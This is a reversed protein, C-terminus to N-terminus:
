RISRLRLGLIAGAGVKRSGDAERVSNCEVPDSSAVIWCGGASIADAEAAALAETPIPGTELLGAPCDPAETSCTVTVFWAEVLPEAPMPRRSPAGVALAFMLEAIM